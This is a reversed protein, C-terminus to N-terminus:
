ICWLPNDPFRCWLSWGESGREPRGHSFAHNWKGKQLSRYLKQWPPLNESTLIKFGSRSFCITIYIHDNRSLPFGSFANQPGYGGSSLVGPLHIQHVPSHTNLDNFINIQTRDKQLLWFGLLVLSSWLKICWISSFHRLSELVDRQVLSYSWLPWSDEFSKKTM